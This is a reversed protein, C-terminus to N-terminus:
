VQVDMADLMRQELQEVMRKVFVERVSPKEGEGVSAEKRAKVLEALERSFNKYEENIKSNLDLLAATSEAKETRERWVSGSSSSAGLLPGLSQVVGEITKKTTAELSKTRENNLKKQHGRKTAEFQERGKRKTETRRNADSIESKVGVTSGDADRVGSFERQVDEPLLNSCVDRFQPYLEILQGM